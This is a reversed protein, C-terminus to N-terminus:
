LLLAINHRTCHFASKATSSMRHSMSNWVQNDGYVGSNDSYLGQRQYSHHTVFVMDVGKRKLHSLGATTDLINVRVQSGPFVPLELSALSAPM